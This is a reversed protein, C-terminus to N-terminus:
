RELVQGILKKNEAIRLEKMTSKQIKEYKTKGDYADLLEKETELLDDQYVIEVNDKKEKAFSVGGFSSLLLTFIMTIILAKKFM